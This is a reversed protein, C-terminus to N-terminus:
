LRSGGESEGKGNMWHEPPEMRKEWVEGITNKGGCNRGARGFSNERIDNMWEAKLVDLEEPVTKHFYTHKMCASFARWYPSCDRLEGYRYWGKLRGPIAVYFIHAINSVSVYGYFMLIFLVDM